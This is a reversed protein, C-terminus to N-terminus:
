CGGVWIFVCRWWGGVCVGKRLEASYAANLTVSAAYDALCHALYMLLLTLWLTFSPAVLDAAAAATPQLLPDAGQGGPSPPPSLFM